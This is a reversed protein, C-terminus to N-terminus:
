PTNQVLIGASVISRSASAPHRLSPDHKSKYSSASFSIRSAASRSSLFSFCMTVGPRIRGAQSNSPSMLADSGSMLKLWVERNCQPISAFSGVRVNLTRVGALLACYMQIALPKTICASLRDGTIYPGYLLDRRRNYSKAIARTAAVFAVWFFAEFIM